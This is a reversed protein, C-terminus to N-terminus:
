MEEGVIWDLIRESFGCIRVWGAGVAPLAPAYTAVNVLYGRDAHPPTLGDHAQEDTVVIVRDARPCNVALAKLSGALYTCGHPQSQAIGQTLPLGRLNPVEVLANSFTFVRCFECVERLLVALAAGAEYRMLESKGSLVSDMSGSVDIVFYTTGRLKPQGAVAALMADSLAQAYAPAHRAAAVFRFPLAKSSPAGDLLAREVISRDVNAQVMNRLNRLLALYGIKKEVLLREFTARKDAGASLAVEWTDPVPLTGSVLQRWLAAQEEDQPKAHCLFLADRLKVKSDRNYKALRYADFKRFAKAVGAKLQRPLPKKGDKWYLAFIEALEDARQIVEAITEGVLNREAATGRTALAQVCLWLPVHRLKLDTRARRALHCLFPLPVVQCLEAIRKALANGSKYFTDEFLMCASVARVLEKEASERVAPAGEHTTFHPTVERALVNTKM